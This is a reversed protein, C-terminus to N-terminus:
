RRRGRVIVRERRLWHVYTVDQGHRFRNGRRRASRRTWGWGIAEEYPSAAIWVWGPMRRAKGVWMQWGGRQTLGCMRRRLRVHADREALLQARRRATQRRHISDAAVLAAVLAALAAYFTLHDSM